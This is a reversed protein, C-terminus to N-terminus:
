ESALFDHLDYWVVKRQAISPSRPAWAHCVWSLSDVLDLSSGGGTTEARLWDRTSGPQRPITRPNETRMLITM